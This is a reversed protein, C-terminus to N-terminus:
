YEIERSGTVEKLVRWHRLKKPGFHSVSVSAGRISFTTLFRALTQVRDDRLLRHTFVLRVDHGEQVQSRIESRGDGMLAAGTVGRRVVGHM